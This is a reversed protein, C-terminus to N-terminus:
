YRPLCSISASHVAKFSKNHYPFKPMITTGSAVSTGDENLLQYFGVTKAIGNAPLFSLVPTYYKQGNSVVEVKVVVKENQADVYLSMSGTNDSGLNWTEGTSGDRGIEVIITNADAGLFNSVIGVSEIDGKKNQISQLFEVKCEVKPVVSSNGPGEGQPTQAFSLTSFAAFFFATFLVNTKM